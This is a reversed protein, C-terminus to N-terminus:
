SHIIRPNYFLFGNQVINLKKAIDLLVQQRWHQAQALDSCTTIDFPRTQPQLLRREEAKM